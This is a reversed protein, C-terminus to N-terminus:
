LECRRTVGPSVHIRDSAPDYRGGSSALCDLMRRDRESYGKGPTATRYSAPTGMREASPAQAPVAKSVPKAAAPSAQLSAALALVAASSGILILTRM